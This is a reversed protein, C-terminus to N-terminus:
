VELLGAALVELGAVRSGKVLVADGDGLSLGALHASAEDIGALSAVGYLDTGVAVLDIGLLAARDAMELHATAEYGGLEAMLGVVAIRRGAVALAALAELGAVMSAPNANYADNIVVLGSSAAEVEMRWPSLRAASLGDAVEDPSLGLFLGVAAAALANSVMHAGHVELRVDARGWPSELRFRPRLGEDLSVDRARVEGREGFTLVPCRARGAQGTVLDDDVNLVACGDPPLGDLLEGKTRAVVELAGFASTHAIDITTIVGVDPRAIGALRVIDGGARAGMELVLFDADGPTGLISLPVGIENNFSRESAHTSGGQALVAATLDKVSTKGVSGTVAVVRASTSARAASGLDCLAAATDAVRIATGDGIAGSTLHAGAGGAVAAEIFGHGDRDAVLPVFLCGPTVSRSDQTAGDLTVDAGILEGGVAAAVESARFRV